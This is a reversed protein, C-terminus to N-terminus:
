LIIIHRLCVFSPSLVPYSEWAGERLAGCVSIAGWSEPISYHAMYAISLATGLNSMRYIESEPSGNPSTTARNTSLADHAPSATPLDEAKGRDGSM